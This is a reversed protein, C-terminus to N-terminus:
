DMFQKLIDTRLNSVNPGFHLNAMFDYLIPLDKSILSKQHYMHIKQLKLHWLQLFHTSQFFLYNIYLNINIDLPMNYAVHKKACIKPNKCLKVVLTLLIFITYFCSFGLFKICFGFVHASHLPGLPHEYNIDCLYGSKQTRTKVRVVLYALM